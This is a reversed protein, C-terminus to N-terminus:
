HSLQRLREALDAMQKNEPAANAATQAVRLADANRKQDILLQVYGFVSEPTTPNLEISYQYIQEAQTPFNRDRLLAAQEAALKAYAKRPDSGIPTELDSALQQMTTRWYDSSQTARESTLANEDGARLEMVPGLPSTDGYMSKFAFSQEIAFSTEPNKEMLMQLLKENITMVAVQGSVQVRGDTVKVDEGPRLQKPENPFQQDHLARKQADALYTQFASQSDASSLAALQDSYQFRAYDLYTSDAFANQTIVIHREGESTENLLTPIFRGPDTGGVYVMGPRLSGLVAEGYALLRQAPWEHAVEAVGYAEMIAPWIKQLGEPSAESQRLKKLTAFQTRLNEWNGADVLDFFREVDPSLGVKFHEALRRALERRSHSFQQLKYAVIEEPTANPGTASHHRGASATRGVGSPGGGRLDAASGGTDPNTPSSGPRPLLIAVLVLLVCAAALLWLWKPKRASSVPIEKMCHGRGRDGWYVGGM